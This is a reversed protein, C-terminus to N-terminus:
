LRDNRLPIRFTEGSNRRSRCAPPRASKLRRDAAVVVGVPPPYAVVV